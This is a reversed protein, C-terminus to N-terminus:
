VLGKLSLIEEVTQINQLIQHLCPKPERVLTQYDFFAIDELIQNAKQMEPDTGLSMLGEAIEVEFFLEVAHLPLKLFEHAFLFKKVRIRLNTEELFERQLCELLTEGFKLGGGPPSWLYGYEGINKHKILLIKGERICIGCVRVRVRNGFAAVIEQEM